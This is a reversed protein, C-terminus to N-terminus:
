ESLRALRELREPAVASGLVKAKQYWNQALGVDATVGGEANLKRLVLPDYTEALAFAAVPDGAEAAPKFMMRAAAINGNAMHGTGRKVMLVITSADLWRPQPYSPPTNNSTPADNRSWELRLSKRDTVTNGAPHLELTLDITGIFGPPPTITAGALEEVSLRWRNPGVQTGTSLMWGPALGGIVVAADTGADVASVTLRGPEDAQQPQAAGVKLQGWVARSSSASSGSSVPASQLSHVAQVLGELALGPQDSQSSAHDPMSALPSSGLKYGAIGIAMVITLGALRVVPRMPSSPAPPGSLRDPALALKNGLKVVAVDGVFPRQGKSRKWPAPISESTANQPAADDQRSPKWLPQGSEHASGRSAANGERHIGLPAAVQEPHRVEKPAYHRPEDGLQRVPPKM